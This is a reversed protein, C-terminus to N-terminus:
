RGTEFTSARASRQGGHGGHESDHALGLVLLVATIAAGAWLAIRGRRQRCYSLLPRWNLRLHLVAVVVFLLGGLEHLLTTGPLRVHFFMLIGTTGIALFTVGTLPSLWIRTSPNAQM